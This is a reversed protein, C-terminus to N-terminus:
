GQGFIKNAYTPCPYSSECTACNDFGIMYNDGGSGSLSTIEWCEGNIAIALGVTATSPVNVDLTTVGDCCSTLIAPVFTAPPIICGGGHEYVCADCDTGLGGSYSTFSNSLTYTLVGGTHTSFAEWCLTGYTGDTTTYTEGVVFTSNSTGNVTPTCPQIVITPDSCCRLYFYNSCSM